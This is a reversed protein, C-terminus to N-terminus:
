CFNCEASCIFVNRFSWEFFKKGMAKTNMFVTILVSTGTKELVLTLDMCMVNDQSSLAQECLTLILHPFDAM